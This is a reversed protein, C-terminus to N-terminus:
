HFISQAMTKIWLGIALVFAGVGSWWKRQLSEIEGEHKELRAQMSTQNAEIRSTTELLKDIKSEMRAFTPQAM